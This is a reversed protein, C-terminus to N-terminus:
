LIFSYRRERCFLIHQKSQILSRTVGWAGMADPLEGSMPATGQMPSEVGDADQAIIAGGMSCTEQPISGQLSATIHSVLTQEENYVPVVISLSNSMFMAEVHSLEQRLASHEVM